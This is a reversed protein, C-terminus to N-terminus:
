VFELSGLNRLFPDAFVGGQGPAAFASTGTFGPLTYGIVFRFSDLNIGSVANAGVSINTGPFRAGFTNADSSFFDAPASTLPVDTEFICFDGLGNSFIDCFGDLNAVAARGDRSSGRNTRVAPAPAATGEAFMGAGADAPAEPAAAASAPAVAMVLGVLGALIGGALGAKRANM